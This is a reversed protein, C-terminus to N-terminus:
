SPPTHSLSISQHRILLWRGNRRAYVRVYRVWYEDIPITRVHLRGASIAVDEHIEVSLSDLSREVFRPRGERIKRQWAARDELTGDSHVFRLDSAWLTDLGASNQQVIAADAAHEIAVVALSDNVTQGALARSLLLASSVAICLFSTM